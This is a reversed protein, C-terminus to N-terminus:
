RRSLTVYFSGSNDPFHDDNVGLMLIGSAPMRIPERNGGIPFPASNGVKAILGGVGMAPVPYSQSRSNPSGDPGVLDAGTTTAIRGRVSFAIMDGARVEWGTDTWAATGPVEVEDGGYRNGAYGYGRDESRSRASGNYNYVRRAEDTNMYIRSISRIPLEQVGGSEGRWRVTDGGVFAVFTGIRTQGNRMVLMQGSGEPLAALEDSSPTGGREGSMLVVTAREAAGLAWGGLALAIVVALLRRGM